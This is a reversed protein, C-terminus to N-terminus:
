NFLRVFATDIRQQVEYPLQEQLAAALRDRRVPGGQTLWYREILDAKEQKGPILLYLVFWDELTSLPVAQGDAWTTGAIDEQRFDLRYIGDAHRIGFLGLLDVEVGEIEMHYFHKTCFPEKPAYEIDIGIDILM